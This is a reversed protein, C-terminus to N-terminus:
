KKAHETIKPVLQQLANNPFLSRLRLALHHTKTYYEEEEKHKNGNKEGRSPFETVM